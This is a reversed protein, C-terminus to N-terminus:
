AVMREAEDQTAWQFRVIEGPGCHIRSAAEGFSDANIFRLRGDKMLVKVVKTTM